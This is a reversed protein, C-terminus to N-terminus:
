RQISPIISNEVFDEIANSQQMVTTYPVDASATTIIVAELDPVVFIIQGGYGSAVAAAHGGFQRLWWLYGYNTYAPHWFGESPLAIQPRTSERVWEASVLQRDQWNGQTLILQGIKAMDRATLCIDSGGIHYGQPDTKWRKITVGMLGLLYEDAFMLTSMNTARSLIVSVLHTLTTNYNFRVGPPDALPLDIVYKVWDSSRQWRRLHSANEFWKFGASMTLLHRLTIQRKIADTEPGFFEPLLEAIPQNLDRLFGERLAIGVLVSLISKSVSKVNLVTHVNQRGFYREGVLHGRRVVLLSHLPPMASATNYAAALAAPDVGHAEPAALPWDDIASPAPTDPQKM